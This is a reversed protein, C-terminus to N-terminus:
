EHAGNQRILEVATDPASQLSTRGNNDKANVGAGEALLLEAVGNHGSAAATFLPTWGKSRSQWWRHRWTVPMRM